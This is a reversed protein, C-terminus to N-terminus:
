ISRKAAGESQCEAMQSTKKVIRSHVDFPKILAAIGVVLGINAINSGIANGLAIDPNGKLSANIAVFIEPSSTGIGIITLGIILPPVGFNRALASAGKVLRNAGLSLITIGLVVEIIAFLM